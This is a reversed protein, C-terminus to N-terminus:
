QFTCDAHNYRSLMDNRGTLGMRYIKVRIVFIILMLMKSFMLCSPFKVVSFFM